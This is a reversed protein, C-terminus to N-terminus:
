LDVQEFHKVSVRYTAFMMIVYALLGIILIPLQRIMMKSEISDLWRFQPFHVIVEMFMVGLSAPIMALLFANGVKYATKFFYTLFIFNFVAYIM